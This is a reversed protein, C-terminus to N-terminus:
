RVRFTQRRGVFDFNIATGFRRTPDQRPDHAGFMRSWVDLFGGFIDAGVLPQGISNPM